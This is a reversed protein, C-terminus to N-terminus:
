KNKKQDNTKVDSEEADSDSDINELKQEKKKIDILVKGTCKKDKIYDVAKNIEYLGFIQSIHPNILEEDCLELTDLITQRYFEIDQYRYKNLDVHQIKDIFSFEMKNNQSDKATTEDTPKEKSKKTKKFEPKTDPFTVSNFFPDVTLFHGNESDVSYISM